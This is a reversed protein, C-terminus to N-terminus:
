RKLLTIETQAKLGHIESTLKELTCEIMGLRTNLEVLSETSRNVETIPVSEKIVVRNTSGSPRGRRGNPILEGTVPDFHGICRKKQVKKQKEESWEYSTDYAYTTDTQHNYSKTISM